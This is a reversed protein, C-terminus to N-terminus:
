ASGGALDGAGRHIAARLAVFTVFVLGLSRGILVGWAGAMVGLRPSLALQCAVILVVWATMVIMSARERGAAAFVMINHHVILLAPASWGLVALISASQSFDKSPFLFRLVDAGFLAIFGGAMLGTVLLTGNAAWFVQKFRRPDRGFSAALLPYSTGTVASEIIGTATVFMDAAAYAGIDQTTGIASIILLPCKLAAISLMTNIGIPWSRSVEPALEDRKWAFGPRWGQRTAAASWGVLVTINVISYLTCFVVLHNDLLSWLVSTACLMVAGGGVFLGVTRQRQLALFLSEFLAQISISGISLGILMSVPWYGDGLVWAVLMTVIVGLPVFLARCALFTEWLQRARDPTRAVLRSFHAGLGLETGMYYIRAIAVALTYSGLAAAGLRRGIALGLLMNAVAALASAIGLAVAGRIAKM